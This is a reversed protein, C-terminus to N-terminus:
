YAKLVAYDMHLVELTRLITFFIFPFVTVTFTQVWKEKINPYVYVFERGVWM